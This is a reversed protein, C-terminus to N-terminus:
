NELPLIPSPPLTVTAAGSGADVLEVGAIVSCRTGSTTGTRRVVPRFMTLTGTSAPLDLFATTGTTPVTVETTAPQGEANVATQGEATMFTLTLRCPDGPTARVNAVSLRAIQGSVMGFPGLVPIIPTVPNPPLTPMQPLTVSTVSSGASIVQAASQVICTGSLRNVVPRVMVRSAVSTASSPANFNRSFLSGPTLTVTAQEGEALPAPVGASNNFQLSVRCPDTPSFATVPNVVSLKLTQGAILGVPTFHFRDTDNAMAVPAICTGALLLSLLHQNKNM